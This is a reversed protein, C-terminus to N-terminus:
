VGNKTCTAGKNVTSQLRRTSSEVIERMVKAAKDDAFTAMTSNLTTPM